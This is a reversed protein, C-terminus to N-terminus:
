SDIDCEECHPNTPRCSERGLFSFSMGAENWFGQPINKMLQEEIKGRTSGSAMGLRQVVREVHLDVIIGEALSGSERIIVNSPFARFLERAIENVRRDTSQASLVVMVVRQYRDAYELPHKKNGYKRFLPKLAEIWTVGKPSSKKRM